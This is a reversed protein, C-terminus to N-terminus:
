NPSKNFTKITQFKKEILKNCRLLVNTTNALSFSNTLYKLLCEEHLNM